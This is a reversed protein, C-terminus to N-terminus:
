RIESDPPFFHELHVVELSAKAADSVDALSLCVGRERAQRAAEILVAVGATDLYTVHSMSVRLHSGPQILGLLTKRAAPAEEADLRDKLEM